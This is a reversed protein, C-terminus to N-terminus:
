HKQNFTIKLQGVNGAEGRNEVPNTEPFLLHHLKTWNEEIKKFDVKEEIKKAVILVCPQDRFVAPLSPKQLM